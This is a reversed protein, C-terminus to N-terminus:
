RIGTAQQQTKLQDEKQIEARIMENIIKHDGLDITLNLNMDKFKHEISQAATENEGLTPLTPLTMKHVDPLEPLGLGSRHSPAIHPLGATTGPPPQQRMMTADPSIGATTVPQHHRIMTTDAPAKGAAAPKGGSMKTLFSDFEHKAKEGVGGLSFSNGMMENWDPKQYAADENGRALALVGAHEAGSGKRNDRVLGMSEAMIHLQKDVDGFEKSYFQDQRLRSAELTQHISMLTTQTEKQLSAGRGLQRDLASGKEEEAAGPKFMDMVGSKMAELIRNAEKEDKAIGATQTLYQTQKFWEGALAPDNAADKRTVIPGGFQAQMATMTKKIVEDMHGTAMLEQIQAAGALGGPGGSAGSIFAQKAVDMKEIGTGIDTIVEKMAEPSIKSDQFAKDFANVFNTTASTNDGLMKFSGAISLVTQNFAEFRLKSDGAKDHMYAMNELADKESTGLRTYMDALQKAVDLQQMGAAAALRSTKVTEEASSLSGPIASLAKNLDMMSAVTQGTETAAKVSMNVYDTYSENMGKFSNASDDSVDAVRGQSLAMNILERELSIVRDRGEIVANTFNMIGSNNGFMSNLIPSVSKFATTMKSSAELGSEGLKGMGTISKDIVGLLDFTGMVANSIGIDSQKFIEAIGAVAKGTEEKVASGISSLSLFQNFLEHAAQAAAQLAKTVEDGMKNHITAFSVIEKGGDKMTQFWKIAEEKAKGGLSEAFRIANDLNITEDM